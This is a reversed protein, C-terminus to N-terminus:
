PFLKEIEEVAADLAKKWLDIDFWIHPDVIGDEDEPLRESEPITEAVAFCRNAKELKM